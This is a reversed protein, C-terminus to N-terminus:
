VREALALYGLADVVSDEHLPSNALRAVKLLAMLYCVDHATLHDSFGFRTTLYASWLKAICRFNDRAHGYTKPRDGGILTEAKDLFSPL